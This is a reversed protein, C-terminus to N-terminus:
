YFLVILEMFQKEGEGVRTFMIRRKLHVMGAARAPTSPDSAPSESVSKGVVTSCCYASQELLSPLYLIQLRHLENANNHYIILIM